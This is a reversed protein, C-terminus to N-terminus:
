LFNIDVQARNYDERSGIDLWYEHIPFAVINMDKKIYSEILDPMDIKGSGELSDLFEPELAYIGANIFYSNTPKEVIKSVINEQSEVVGYPITHLYERVCMTAIGKNQQHYKLFTGFNLNSLIDANMMIFSTDIEQRPLLRLAGGTGLPEEEHIYTIDVERFREDGFHEVIKESLYYTSIYFRKFGSDIFSDLIRELIPKKGIRLLPKPLDLTLDGLRRGFGGAMIFVPNNSTDPIKIDKMVKLDVIKSGELIPISYIEREKMVKLIEEESEKNSIVLPDLKMINKVPDTIENGSLLGRRIDGDSVVGALQFNSDVVLALGKNTTNIVEMADKIISDPEIISYKWDRIDIEKNM